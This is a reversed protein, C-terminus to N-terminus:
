LNVGQAKAEAVIREYEAKMDEHMMKVSGKYSVEVLPIFYNALRYCSEVLQSFSVFSHKRDKDQFLQILELHEKLASETDILRQESSM